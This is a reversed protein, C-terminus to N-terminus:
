KKNLKYPWIFDSWKLSFDKKSYLHLITLIGSVPILIITSNYISIMRYFSSEYWKLCDDSVNKRYWNHITCTHFYVQFASLLVLGVLILNYMHILTNATLLLRFSLLSYKIM